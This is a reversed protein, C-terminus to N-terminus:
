HFRFVMSILLSHDQSLWNIVLIWLFLTLYDILFSYVSGDILYIRYLVYYLYQLSGSFTWWLIHVLAANPCCKVNGSCCQFLKPFHNELLYFHSPFNPSEYFNLNDAIELCDWQMQIILYPQLTLNSCSWSLIM